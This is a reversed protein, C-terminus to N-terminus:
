QRPSHLAKRFAGAGCLVQPLQQSPVARCKEWSMRLSPPDPTVKIQTCTNADPFRFVSSFKINSSFKVHICHEVSFNENKSCCKQPFNTYKYGSLAENKTKLEVSHQRRSIEFHRQCQHHLLLSDKAKFAKWFKYSTIYPFLIHNSLAWESRNKHNEITTTLFSFSSKDKPCNYTSCPFCCINSNNSNSNSNNFTARFM